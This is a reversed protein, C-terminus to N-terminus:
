KISKIGEAIERLLEFLTKFYSKIVFSYLIFTILILVLALTSMTLISLPYYWSITALSILLKFIIDLIQILLNM